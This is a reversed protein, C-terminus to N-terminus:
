NQTCVMYPPLLTSPKCSTNGTCESPTSGCVVVRGQAFTCESAARCQTGVYTSGSGLQGCCVDSGSCDEPGDCYVDAAQPCNTGDAVCSSSSAGVCCFNNQIDCSNPVGGCHVVGPQNGTAGGTGGTGGGVGGAGAVGGTGGAGGAGAVGGTGGAGGTSGGAGGAGGTGGGAGGTGGGAGASGGVSGGAGASGGVSGGAGASGGVSGGAGASGGVSGGAGASGGAGGTGSGAAGSSGGSGTGADDTFSFDDYSNTCAGAVVASAILLSFGSRRM